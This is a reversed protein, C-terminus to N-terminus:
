NSALLILGSRPGISGPNNPDFSTTNGAITNNGSCYATESCPLSIPQILHDYVVTTLEGGSLSLKYSFSTIPSCGSCNFWNSSINVSTISATNLLVAAPGYDNGSIYLHKYEQRFVAAGPDPEIIPSFCLVKLDVAGGSDGSATPCGDGVTQITGNWKFPAVSVEPGQPVMTEEFFYPVECCDPPVNTTLSIRYYFPVIRDPVLTTPDPVLFRFATAEERIPIGAQVTGPGYGYLGPFSGGASEIDIANLNKCGGSTYQVIHSMTNIMYVITQTNAYIPTNGSTPSPSPAPTGKLFVVEEAELGQTNTNNNTGYAATCFNDIADMDDVVGGFNSVFCHGGSINDCTGTNIGGGPQLGNGAFSFCTTSCDSSKWINNAFNGLGTEWDVPAHAANNGLVNCAANGYEVSADCPYGYININDELIGFPAPFNTKTWAHTALWNLWSSDDPNTAYGNPPSGCSGTSPNVRRSPRDYRHLFGSEDNTNLYSYGTSVLVEPETM